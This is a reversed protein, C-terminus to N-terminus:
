EVYYTDRGGVKIIKVAKDDITTKRKYIKYEYPVELLKPMNIKNYEPLKNELDINRLQEILNSYGVFLIDKYLQEIQEDTLTKTKINIDLNNMYLIENKIYNGIGCFLEQKLLFSAFIMNKSKVVEKFKELSFEERFIDIGLKNIIKNHEEENHIELKSLRTKDEIFIDYDKNNKNIIFSYKVNKPNKFIVWGTLGLHIHLYNFNNDSKIKIFLLKGKCSIDIIENNESLENTIDQGLKIKGGIFKDKLCTTICLIEPGEPM